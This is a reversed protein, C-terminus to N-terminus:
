LARLKSQENTSRKQKWNDLNCYKNKNLRLNQDLLFLLIALNTLKQCENQVDNYFLYGNNQPHLVLKYSCHNVWSIHKLNQFVGLSLILWLFIYILFLLYILLNMFNMMIYIWHLYARYWLIWNPIMFRRSRVKVKICDQCKDRTNTSQISLENYNTMRIIRFM